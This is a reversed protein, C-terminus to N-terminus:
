VPGEKVLRMMVRLATQADEADKQASALDAKLQANENRLQWVNETLADNRHSVRGARDLADKQGQVAKAVQDRLGQRDQSLQVEKANVGDWRKGLEEEADQVMGEFHRTLMTDKVVRIALEMECAQMAAWVMVQRQRRELGAEMECFDGQHNQVADFFWRQLDKRNNEDIVASGNSNSFFDVLREVSNRKDM